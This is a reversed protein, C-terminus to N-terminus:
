TVRNFQNIQFSYGGVMALVRGTHPDMAVIGGQVEPLQRLAYSGEPVPKGDEDETERSVAIIDGPVVVDAPRKPRPAWTDEDIRRRAWSMLSMPMR